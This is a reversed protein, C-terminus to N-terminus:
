THLRGNWWIKATSLSIRSLSSRFFFCSRLNRIRVMMSVLGSLFLTFLIVYVHDPDAVAELIYTDLTRKFGENINGAVMCAGVFVGSFLSFEVKVHLQTDFNHTLARRHSDTFLM